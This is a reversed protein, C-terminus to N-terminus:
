HVDQLTVLNEGSNGLDDEQGPRFNPATSTEQNALSCLPWWVGLFSNCVSLFVTVHLPHVTM